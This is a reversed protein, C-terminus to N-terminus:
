KQWEQGNQWAPSPVWVHLIQDIRGNRDTHAETFDLKPADHDWECEYGRLKLWQTVFQKEEPSLRLSLRVIQDPKRMTVIDHEISRTIVAMQGELHTPKRKTRRVVETAPLLDETLHRLQREPDFGEYAYAAAEAFTVADGRSNQEAETAVKWSIDATTEWPPMTKQTQATPM